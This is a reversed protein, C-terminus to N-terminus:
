REANRLRKQVFKGYDPSSNSKGEGSIQALPIEARAASQHGGALGIEGFTERARKGANRRFGANRFIVILKGDQIGSVVSWTAEALKMFFDAVIVLTDANSVRGMHVFATEGIFSLNEMAFKISELTKVSLESAEIKKIINLNALEYLYRFVIIDRSVSGRVFDDTDSKIAYFLATALRPSPKIKAAKLYATMITANAGYEPQIDIFAAEGKETLPHHDIIIDFPYGAFAENHSPQADVLAWKTVESKKLKHIHRHQINLLRIFAQNDSRAIKNIRYIDIRRARRWFLRKLALASALADPDANVLIALIDKTDVVELLKKHKESFSVSKAFPQKM